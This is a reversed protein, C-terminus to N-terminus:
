NPTVNIENEILLYLLINYIITTKIKNKEEKLLSKNNCLRKLDTELTKLPGIHRFNKKTLSRINPTYNHPCNEIELFSTELNIGSALSLKIINPTEIKLFDTPKLEINPALKINQSNDIFKVDENNSISYNKNVFKLWSSSYENEIEKSIDTVKFNILDINSELINKSQNYLLKLHNVLLRMESFCKRIEDISTKKDNIINNLKEIRSVADVSKISFM